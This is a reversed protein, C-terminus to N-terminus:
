RPSPTLGSPKWRPRLSVVRPSQPLCLSNGSGTSRHTGPGPLAMLLVAGLLKATERGEEQPRCPVGLGGPPTCAYRPAPRGGQHLHAPGPSVPCHCEEPCDWPSNGMGQLPEGSTVPEAGGRAAAMCDVGTRVSCLPWAQAPRLLGGSLARSQEQRLSVVTARNGHRRPATECVPLSVSHHGQVGFKKFPCSKCCM